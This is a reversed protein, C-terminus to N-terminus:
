VDTLCLLLRRGSDGVTNSQSSSQLSPYTQTIRHLETHKTRTPMDSITSPTTLGPPRLPSQPGLIESLRSQRTDKRCLLPHVPPNKPWLHSLPRLPYMPTQHQSYSQSQAQISFKQQPHPNELPYSKLLTKHALPCKSFFKNRLTLSLHTPSTLTELNQTM